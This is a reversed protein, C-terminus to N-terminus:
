PRSSAEQRIAEVQITLLTADALGAQLGGNVGWQSRLMTTQFDGGCVERRFLPNLYCNFRLAKLTLPHTQGRLTLRGRVETLADDDWRLTDSVFRAHPHNAVDLFDGGRLQEDLAPVGTSVAAVDLTLDVAGTRAVKDLTVEGSAKVFRGRTTSLGFPRMEFMVSTHTPDIGYVRAEAFAAPPLALAAATTLLTRRNM